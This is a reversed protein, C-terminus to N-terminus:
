RVGILMSLPRSCYSKMGPLDGTDQSSPEVTCKSVNHPVNGQTQSLPPRAAQSMAQRSEEQIRLEMSALGAIKGTWENVKKKDATAKAVQEAAAEERSKRPKPAVLQGPHATKNRERTEVM